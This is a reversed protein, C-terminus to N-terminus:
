AGEHGARASKHEPGHPRMQFLAATMSVRVTRPTRPPQAAAHLRNSAEGVAKVVDAWLEPEVWLEADTDTAPGSGREVDRRVLEAALMRVFQQRAAVDSAAGARESEWAHRYLKAVGGRVRREGADVVEGAAALQRLHYSANAQTIGLERAIDAACLSAGTLLSLIRLRVPHALARLSRVELSM